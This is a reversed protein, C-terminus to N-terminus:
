STIFPLCINVQVFEINTADSAKLITDADDDVFVGVPQAGYERAVKSIEKAVSLSISRKSNPWLVMGIFNAGAEAAAAADRASTIGCMKVLPSDKGYKVHSPQGEASQSLVSTRITESYTIRYFYEKRGQLEAFLLLGQLIYLLIKSPKLFNVM